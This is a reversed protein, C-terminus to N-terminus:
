TARRLRHGVRHRRGRRVVAPLWGMEDLDQGLAKKSPVRDDVEVRWWSNFTNYLMAVEISAKADPETREVVFRSVPDAAQRYREVGRAMLAPVDPLRGREKWRRLGQLMWALVGPLDERLRRKLERDVVTPRNRFEVIRLRRWLGSAAPASPRHNSAILLHARSAFVDSNQRMRNAEIRGGDILLNLDDSHWRGREPLENVVVLRKGQLGALWQRHDDREGAVRRGSITTGFTGAVALLTESFTSKGSGPNGWAFICAEDRCDGTLAVGCWEQLYDAVAERDGPQYHSLTENIFRIWVKSPETHPVVDLTKRVRHEPRMEIQQWSGVDLITGDPFPVFLLHKDFSDGAATWEYTAMALAGTVVRHCDFRTAGKTGEVRACIHKAMSARAACEGDRWCGDEFCLWGEGAAYLYKDPGNSAVWERAFAGESLADDAAAAKGAQAASAVTADVERSALGTALAAERYPELDREGRKSAHYVVRNLTDNRTGPAATMVTQPGIPGAPTRALRNLDAASVLAASAYAAELGALVRDPEWLVVFGASGRIDGHKWKRNSIADAARRYWLHAGGDRRTRTQVIPQGLVKVAEAVGADGGQDVDVVLTGLSAPIVGVLGGGAAHREVEEFSPRNCQWGKSIPSKNLTALVFHGGRQELARLATM